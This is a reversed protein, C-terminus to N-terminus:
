NARKFGGEDKGQKEMVIEPFLVKSAYQRLTLVCIGRGEFQLKEGNRKECRFKDANASDSPVALYQTKGKELALLGEQPNAFLKEAQALAMERAAKTAAAKNPYIEEGVKWEAANATVSVIALAIAMAINNKKM